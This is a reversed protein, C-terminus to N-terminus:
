KNKYNLLLVFANCLDSCMELNLEEILIINFKRNFVPPKPLLRSKAQVHSCQLYKWYDSIPVLEVCVGTTLRLIM